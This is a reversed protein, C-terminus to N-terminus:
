IVDYLKVSESTSPMVCDGVDINVYNMSREDFGKMKCTEELTDELVHACQNICEEKDNFEPNAIKM